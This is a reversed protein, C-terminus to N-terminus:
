PQNAGVAVAQCEFEAVELWVDGSDIGPELVRELRQQLSRPTGDPSTRLKISRLGLEGLKDIDIDFADSASSGVRGMRFLAQIEPLPTRSAIIFMREVPSTGSVEWTAEARTRAPLMHPEGGAVPNRVSLDPDPFLAHVVGPTNDAESLVYVHMDERSEVTVFLADGPRLTDTPHLAVPYVADRDSRFFTTQVNLSKPLPRVWALAALLVAATTAALLVRGQRRRKRAQPNTAHLAAQLAEEMEGASAFRDGPDHQLAKSVVRAFSAPIDARRDRIPVGKTRALKDRLTDLDNCEIPYRGTVLRYLLVGLQYIDAARTPAQGELVEPPTALPTVDRRTEDASREELASGFDMLVIRGGRERVVNATKVDGHVIHEAHIAALAGCLEIGVLAAEQASFLDRSAMRDELTEGNLLETRIGPRGDHIEVGHVTIVNPHRVAALRQVEGLLKETQSSTAGKPKLFKVAVHRRLTPDYARYVDGFSGQGIRELLIHSGWRAHGNVGGAPERGDADSTPSDQERAFRESAAHYLQSISEIERLMSLKGALVPDKEVADWDVAQGDAVAEAFERLADNESPTRPEM